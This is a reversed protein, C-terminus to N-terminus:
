PRVSRVKEILQLFTANNYSGKWLNAFKCVVQLNDPAYHGDSDIRDLSPQLEADGEDGFWKLELGTLMCRGGQKKILQLVYDQFVADSPFGCDKNKVTREELQGNSNRVTAMARRVLEAAADAMKREANFAAVDPYTPFSFNTQQVKLRWAARDHWADLSGGFILAQAYEAHDDSLYGLTGQAKQLFPRASPHLGAWELPRGSISRCSWPLAPKHFVHVVDSNLSLGTGVRQDEAIPGPQSITWWLFKDVRHLWIEDLSSEFKKNNNWWTTATNDSARAGSSSQKSALCLNKYGEEDGLEYLRRLDADEYIAITGRAKCEPWLYHKPGFNAAVVKRNTRVPQNAPPTM